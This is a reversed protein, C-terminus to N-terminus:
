KQAEQQVALDENVGFVNPVTSARMKAMDADQKSDVMGVLTVHGNDVLIHIPPMSGWAYKDLAPYEYIARYEARRIQDDMPSVPLVKLNNTVNQVGEVHQVAKEADHKLTPNTVAGDLEVNNGNVRFTLWDFITYYPLMLLEHRVEKQIRQQDPVGSGLKNRDHQNDAAFMSLSMLLLAALLGFKKM